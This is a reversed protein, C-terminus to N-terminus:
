ENLYDAFFRPVFNPPVLKQYDENYKVNRQFKIKLEGSCSYVM